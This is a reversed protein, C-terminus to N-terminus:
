DARNISSRQPHAYSRSVTLVHERLTPAIAPQRLHPPSITAQRLGTSDRSDPCACSNVTTRPPPTPTTRSQSKSGGDVLMREVGPTQSFRDHNRRRYRATRMWRGGKERDDSLPLSSFFSEFGDVKKYETTGRATLTHTHHM